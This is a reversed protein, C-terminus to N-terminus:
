NRVELVSKKQKLTYSLQLSNLKDQPLRNLISILSLKKMRIQDQLTKLKSTKSIFHNSFCKSCTLSDQLNCVYCSM